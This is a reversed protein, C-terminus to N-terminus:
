TSYNRKKAAEDRKIDWDTLIKKQLEDLQKRGYKKGLFDLREKAKM